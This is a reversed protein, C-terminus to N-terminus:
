RQQPSRRWDRMTCGFRRRFLEKLYGDSEFGCLPAIEGIPTQTEALLACVRRLRADQITQCVTRGSVKKFNVELLRVSVFAAKAVDRVGISGDAANKEIFEAARSVMLRADGRDSTSERRVVGLAGYRLIRGGPLGGKLMKALTAIELYGGGEYDLAISSLSPPTHPCVFEDNDVGLVLAAHPVAVGADRCADLVKAAVMDRACLIGCPKPLAAVWKALARRQRKGSDPAASAAGFSSYTRGMRAACVALAADREASWSKDGRDGKRRSEGVYAFHAVNRSAFHEAACQAIGANDVFVSASDVPCGEPPLTEAFVIARCGMKRAIGPMKSIQRGGVLGDPRWQRFASLRETATGYGFLRVEVDPHTSAYRLVGRAMERSVRLRVDMHVLVKMKGSPCDEM